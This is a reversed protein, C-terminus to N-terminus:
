ETLSMIAGDYTWCHASASIKMTAPTNGSRYTYPSASSPDEVTYSGSDVAFISVATTEPTGSAVKVCYTWGVIPAAPLIVKAGAAAFVLVDYSGMTFTSGGDLPGTQTFDLGGAVLAWSTGNFVWRQGATTGAALAQGNAAVVTCVNGSTCNLDGTAVTENLAPLQGTVLTPGADLVLTTAIVGADTITGTAGGVLQVNSVTGGGGGGTIILQSGLRGASADQEATSSREPSADCDSSPRHRGVAAAAVLVSAAAACLIAFFTKPTM